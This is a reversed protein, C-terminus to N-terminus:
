PLTYRQPIASQYLYVTQGNELIDELSDIPKEYNIVTLHVRLNSVYFMNMLLSLIIWLLFAFKGASWKAEFWPLSDPETIRSLPYIFFNTKSRELKALKLHSLDESTYLTYACLFFFSLSLVTILTLIWVTSDLPNLLFGYSFAVKQPLRSIYRAQSMEIVSGFDFFPGLVGAIGAHAMDVNNTLVQFAM